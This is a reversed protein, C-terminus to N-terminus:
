GNAVEKRKPPDPLKRWHTVNEGNTLNSDSFRRENANYACNWQFYSFGLDTLEQIYCWYRGGETPLQDEVSIWDDKEGASEDKKYLEFFEKTTFRFQGNIMKGEELFNWLRYEEDFYAIEAAWEAFGIVDDEKGREAEAPPQDHLVEIVDLSREFPDGRGETLIITEWRELADNYAPYFGEVVTEKGYLKITHGPKINLEEKVETAKIYKKEM